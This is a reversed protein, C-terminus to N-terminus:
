TPGSILRRCIEDPLPMNGVNRITLKDLNEEFDLINGRVENIGSLPINMRMIETVITQM